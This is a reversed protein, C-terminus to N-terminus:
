LDMEEKTLAQSLLGWGNKLKGSNYGLSTRFRGYSDIEQKISGGKRSDIGKTLINM